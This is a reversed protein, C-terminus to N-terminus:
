HLMRRNIVEGPGINKYMLLNCYLVIHIQYIESLLVHTSLFCCSQLVCSTYMTLGLYLQGHYSLALM